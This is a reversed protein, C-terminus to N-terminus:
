NISLIICFQGCDLQLVCEKSFPPKANRQLPLQKPNKKPFSVWPVPNRLNTIEETASAEEQSVSYGGAGSGEVKTERSFDTETKAIWINQFDCKKREKRGRRGQNATHVFVFRQLRSAEKSAQREAV